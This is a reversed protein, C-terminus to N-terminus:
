AASPTALLLVRPGKGLAIPQPATVALGNAPTPTLPVAPEKAVTPALPTAVGHPSRSIKTKVM